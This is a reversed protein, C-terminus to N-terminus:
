RLQGPVYFFVTAAMVYLVVLQLGELWNSEGDQSVFFFTITVLALVTIEIPNFVLDLPHQFQSVLVLIPAVFLAVQISSGSAVGLSTDMKNKIALTIASSQEALNGLMPIVIIGVFFPSWGLNTTFPGVKNVLADSAGFILLTAVALLMISRAFPWAAFAEGLDAVAAAEEEIFTSSSAEGARGGRYGFISYLLYSVYIVLLLIAAVVSIQLARGSHTTARYLSPLTLAAVSLAM